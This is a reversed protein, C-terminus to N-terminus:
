PKTSHSIKRHLPNDKNKEDVWAAAKQLADYVSTGYFRKDEYNTDANLIEVASNDSGSGEENDNFLLVSAAPGQVRLRDIIRMSDVMVSLPSSPPLIEVLEYSDFRIWAATAIQVFFVRVFAGSPAIEQVVAEM